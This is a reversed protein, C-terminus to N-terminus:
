RLRLFSVTPQAPSSVAGALCGSLSISLNQLFVPVVANGLLGRPAGPSGVTASGMSSGYLACSLPWSPILPRGSTGWELGHPAGGSCGVLEGPWALLYRRAFWLSRNNLGGQGWAVEWARQPGWAARGQKGEAFLQSCSPRRSATLKSGTASEILERFDKSFPWHARPIRDDVM